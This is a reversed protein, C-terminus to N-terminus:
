FKYSISGFFGLREGYQAANVGVGTGNRLQYINDTVNVVDLRATLIQKKHIVFSQAAGINVSYYAPVSGGNPIPAPPLSGPITGGDTRLGTGYLADVYVRTSSRASQKWLYSTGFSGTVPQDHDLYIYNNQVYARSAPDFLFQASSWNAGQAVSYAVNAYTSFGGATYTGTFEVGYVEGRSYNFSQLILTQCFL